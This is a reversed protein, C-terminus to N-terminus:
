RWEKCGIGYNRGKFANDIDEKGAVCFCKSVLRRIPDGCALPRIADIDEAFSDVSRGRSHAELFDPAAGRALLNV